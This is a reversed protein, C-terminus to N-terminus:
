KPDAVPPNGNKFKIIQEVTVIGLCLMALIQWAYLAHLQMDPTLEYKTIYAGMLVAFLASLKRASYGGDGTKLSGFLNLLLVKFKDWFWRM